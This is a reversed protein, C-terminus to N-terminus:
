KGTLKKLLENAKKEDAAAEPKKGMERYIDSRAFYVDPEQPSLEVAKNADALAKEFKEDAALVKARNIYGDYEGPKMQVYKDADELAEKPKAALDNYHSRTLYLEPVEPSKAIEDTLIQVAKRNDGVSRAKAMAQEASKEDAQGILPLALAAAALAVAVISKRNLM